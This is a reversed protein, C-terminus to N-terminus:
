PLFLSFIILSALQISELGGSDKNKREDLYSELGTRLKKIARMMQTEVTNKSIGLVEAVEQHRMKDEKVMKFIMKCSAPLEEVLENIKQQLEKAALQEQPTPNETAFEIIEDDISFFYYANNKKLHTIAKHKVAKYLYLKLNEIETLKARNKWINAFIDLVLEEAQEKVKVYFLALAILSPYYLYFLDQFARADNHEAIQRILHEPPMNPAFDKKM